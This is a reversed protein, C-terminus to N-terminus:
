SLRWTHSSKRPMNTVTVTTPTLPRKYLCLRSLCPKIKDFMRNHCALVKTRFERCVVFGVTKEAQDKTNGICDKRDLVNRAEFIYCSREYLWKESYVKPM